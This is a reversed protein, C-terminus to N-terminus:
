DEPLRELALDALLSVRQHDLGVALVIMQNVIVSRRSAVQYKFAHVLLLVSLSYDMNDFGVLELVGKLHASAM